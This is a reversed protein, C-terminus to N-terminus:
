APAGSPFLKPDPLRGGDGLADAIRLGENRQATREGRTISGVELQLAAWGVTLHAITTVEIEGSRTSVIAGFGNEQAVTLSTHAESLTGVQNPKVLVANCAGDMAAAEAPEANTVLYDDGVVRVRDGATQDRAEMARLRKAIEGEVSAM